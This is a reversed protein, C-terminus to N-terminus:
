EKTEKLSTIAEFLSPYTWSFGSNKVKDVNLRVSSLVTESMEGLALKFIWSHLPILLAPTSYAKLSTALFEKLRLPEPSAANFNSNMSNNELAHIMMRCLDRIHIWSYWQKGSSFVPIVRFPKSMMLKPFAGGRTSLVISIRFQVTRVNNQRWQDVSKEWKICSSPLFGETGPGSEEDLIEDGRDGYFNMGGASICAQPWKNLQKCASILVENSQTRSKTIRSKQKETWRTAVNEGSLNIIADAFEIAEVDVFNNGPDWKFYRYGTNKKLSRSLIGVEYGKEKLEKALMRGVLGTGGAILINKM